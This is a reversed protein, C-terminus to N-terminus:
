LGLLSSCPRLGLVTPNGGTATAPRLIDLLLRTPPATPPIGRILGVIDTADTESPRPSVRYPAEPISAAEVLLAVVM